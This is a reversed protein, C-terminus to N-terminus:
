EAYNSAWVKGCDMCGTIKAGHTMAGRPVGAREWATNEPFFVFTRQHQCRLHRVFRHLAVFLRRTKQMRGYCTLRPRKTRM